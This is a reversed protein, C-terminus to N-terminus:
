WSCQLKERQSLISKGEGQVKPKVMHGLKVLSIKAPIACAFTQFPDTCRPKGKQAGLAAIHDLM